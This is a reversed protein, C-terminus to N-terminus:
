TLLYYKNLHSLHVDTTHQECYKRWSKNGGPQADAAINKSM